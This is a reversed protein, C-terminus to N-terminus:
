VVRRSRSGCSCRWSGPGPRGSWDCGSSGTGIDDDFLVGRIGEDAHFPCVELMM